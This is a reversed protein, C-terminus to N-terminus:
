KRYKKFKAYNSKIYEKIKQYIIEIAFRNLIYIFLLAGIVAELNWIKYIVILTPILFISKTMEKWGLTFDRMLIDYWKSRDDKEIMAGFFKDISKNAVAVVICLLLTVIIEMDGDVDKRDEPPKSHM